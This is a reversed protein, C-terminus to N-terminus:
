VENSADYCSIYLGSQLPNPDFKLRLICMLASHIYCLCLNWLPHQFHTKLYFIYGKRGKIENYSPGDLYGYRTLQRWCQQGWAASPPSLSLYSRIYGTETLWQLETCSPNLFDAFSLWASIPVSCIGLVFLANNSAPLARRGVGLKSWQGQLVNFLCDRVTGKRWVLKLAESRLRTSHKM